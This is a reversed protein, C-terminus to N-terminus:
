LFLVKGRGPISGRDGPKYNPVISISSGQSTSMLLRLSFSINKNRLYFAKTQHLGFIDLWPIHLLNGIPELGLTHECVDSM